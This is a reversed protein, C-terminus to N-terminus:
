SNKVENEPDSSTEASDKMDVCSRLVASLSDQIIITLWTTRSYQIFITLSILSAENEDEVKLSDIHEYDYDDFDM